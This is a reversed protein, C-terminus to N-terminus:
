PENLVAKFDMSGCTKRGTFYNGSLHKTNDIILMATGYHMASRNQIEGNPTNLYTYILMKSGNIDYIAATVSNSYSENTVLKVTVRLFSQEIIIESDREQDRNDWTFKIKGKYRKALIPMSGTLINLLKCKWWWKNFCFMFVTAIGIAEGAYGFLSYGCDLIKKEEIITGLDKWGILCRLVFVIISIWISLSVFKKSTKTM